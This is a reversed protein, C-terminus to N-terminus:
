FNLVHACAAFVMDSEVCHIAFSILVTCHIFITTGGHFADRMRATCHIFVATGSEIFNKACVFPIILLLRRVEMCICYLRRVEMIKVCLLFSFLLKHAEFLSRCVNEYLSKTFFDNINVLREQLDDSAPAAEIGSMVDVHM